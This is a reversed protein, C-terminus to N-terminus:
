GPHVVKWGLAVHQADEREVLEVGEGAASMQHDDRREGDLLQGLVLQRSDESVLQAVM